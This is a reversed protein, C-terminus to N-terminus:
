LGIEQLADRLKPLPRQHLWNTNLRLASLVQSEYVGNEDPLVRDYRGRSNLVFFDEEQLEPDIIWYERVGEIEYEAFKEGRDRLRSEPSIIEVCLDAPGELHNESINAVNESAIFMIDPERGRMALPLKMQFPAVVIDGLEHEENWASLLRTLFVVLLQHLYNASLFIVEGLGDKGGIWEAHQGDTLRLFEDYSIRETALAEEESFCENEPIRIKPEALM